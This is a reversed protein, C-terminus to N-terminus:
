YLSFHLGLGQYKDICQNNITSIESLHSFVAAHASTPSSDYTVTACNLTSPPGAAVVVLVLSVPFEENSSVVVMNIM